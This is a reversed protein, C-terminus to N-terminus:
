RKLYDLRRSSVRLRMVYTGGIIGMCRYFIKSSFGDLGPSKDVDIAHVVEFVDRESFERVLDTESLWRSVGVRGLVLEIWVKLVLVAEAMELPRSRSERADECGSCSDTGQVVVGAEEQLVQFRSGQGVDGGGGDGPSPRSGGKVVVWAGDNGRRERLDNRQQYLGQPVVAKGKRDERLVHDVAATSSKVQSGRVRKCHAARHGWGPPVSGPVLLDLTLDCRDRVEDM